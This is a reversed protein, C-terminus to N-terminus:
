NGSLLKKLEDINYEDNQILWKGNIEKLTLLGEVNIKKNQRSEKNNLLLIFSYNLIINEDDNNKNNVNFQLDKTSLVAQEKEAVQLPLSINKTNYQKFYYDETLYLETSELQKEIREPSSADIVDLNFETTKYDRAVKIAASEEVTNCGTLLIFFIISLAFIRLIIHM